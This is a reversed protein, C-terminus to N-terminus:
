YLFILKHRLRTENELVYDIGGSSNQSEGKIRNEQKVFDEM